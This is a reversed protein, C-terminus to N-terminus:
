LIQMTKKLIHTPSLSRKPYVFKNDEDKSPYLNLIIIYMFWNNIELKHNIKMVKAFCTKTFSFIDLCFNM